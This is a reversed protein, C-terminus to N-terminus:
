VAHKTSSSAFSFKRIITNARAYLARTQRMMDADDTLDSNIIHITVGEERSNSFCLIKCAPHVGNNSWLTSASFLHHFTVEWVVVQVRGRM